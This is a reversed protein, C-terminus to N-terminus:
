SLYNELNKYFEESCSKEPKYVNYLFLNCGKGLLTELFLCNFLAFRTKSGGASTKDPLNSQILASYHSKKACNLEVLVKLCNQQKLWM